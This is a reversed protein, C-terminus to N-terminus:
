DQDHKLAALLWTDDSGTAVREADPARAIYDTYCRLASRVDSRQELYLDGARRLREPLRKRSGRRALQELLEPDSLEARPSADTQPQDPAPAVPAGPRGSEILHASGFGLLYIAVAVFAHSARRRVRRRRLVADGQRLIADRLRASDEPVDFVSPPLGDLDPHLPEGQTPDM